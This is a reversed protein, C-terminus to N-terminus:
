GWVWGGARGAVCEEGEYISDDMTTPNFPNTWDIDPRDVACLLPDTTPIFFGYIFLSMDPRHLVGSQYCNTVEEGKKIARTARVIM